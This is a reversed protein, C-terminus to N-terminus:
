STPQSVARLKPSNAQRTRPRRGKKSPKPGRRASTALRASHRAKKLAVANRMKAQFKLARAKSPFAKRHRKGEEDDWDAYWKGYKHLMPSVKPSM